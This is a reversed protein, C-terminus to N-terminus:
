GLPEKDRLEISKKNEITQVIDQYNQFKYDFRLEEYDRYIDKLYNYITKNNYDLCPYKKNQLYYTVHTNYKFEIYNKFDNIFSESATCLKLRIHNRYKQLYGDGDIVGRMYMNLCNGTLNKPFQLDYTKNLSPTGCQNLLEVFKNSTFRFEVNDKYFFLDGKYSIYEKLYILVNEINSINKLRLAIRYTKLGKINGKSIYGDSAILGILYCIIPDTLTLKDENIVHKIKSRTNILNHKKIWYEITPLSVNCEKAITNQSKRLTLYQNELWSKEKYM